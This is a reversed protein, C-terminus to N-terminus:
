VLRPQTVYVAMSLIAAGRYKSNVRTSKCDQGYHLAKLTHLQKENLVTNAGIRFYLTLMSSFHSGPPGSVIYRYIPVHRQFLYGKEM